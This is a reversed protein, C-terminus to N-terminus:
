ATSRRSWAKWNTSPRACEVRYDLNGAAVAAAGEALAQIPVTIRKALYMAFWSFAFVILLTSLVLILLITSVCRRSKARCSSTPM